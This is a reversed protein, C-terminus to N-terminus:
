GSFADNDIGILTNPLTVGTISSTVFASGGISTVTYFTGNYTVSAPIVINGFYSGGASVKVTNTGTPEYRIGGTEFYPLPEGMPPQAALQFASLLILLTLSTRKVFMFLGRQNFIPTLRMDVCKGTDEKQSSSNLVQTLGDQFQTICITKM